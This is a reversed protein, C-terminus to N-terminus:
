KGEAIVEEIPEEKPEEEVPKTEVAALKVQETAKIAIAELTHESDLSAKTAGTIAVIKARTAILGPKPIDLKADVIAAVRLPQVPAEVSVAVPETIIVVDPDATLEKLAAIHDPMDSDFWATIVSVNGLFGSPQALTDTMARFRGNYKQCFLPARVDGPVQVLSEKGDPEIQNEYHSYGYKSIIKCEILSM